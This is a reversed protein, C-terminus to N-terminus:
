RADDNGCELEAQRRYALNIYAMADEYSPRLDVAKHLHDLAEDVLSGNQEALQPCIKKPTGGDAELKQTLNHDAPSQLANKRAKGWDSVGITYYGEPDKPDVALVKQPAAKADDGE